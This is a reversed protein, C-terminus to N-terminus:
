SLHLSSLGPHPRQLPAQTALLVGDSFQLLAHLLGAPSTYVPEAVCTLGTSKACVTYSPAAATFPQVHAVAPLLQQLDHRCATMQSGRHHKMDRWDAECLQTGLCLQTTGLNSPQVSQCQMRAHQLFAQSFPASSSASRCSTLTFFSFPSTVRLSPM